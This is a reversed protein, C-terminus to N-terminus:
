AGVDSFPRRSGREVMLGAGADLDVAVQVGFAMLWFLM